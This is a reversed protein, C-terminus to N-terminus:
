LNREYLILWIKVEVSQKKSNANNHVNDGSFIKKHHLIPLYVTSRM